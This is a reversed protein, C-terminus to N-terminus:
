FIRFAQRASASQVRNSAVEVARAGKPADSGFDEETGLATNLADVVVEAMLRRPQAHSCNTHDQGNTANPVATLQYVRSNLITRELRRLDYRHDVFDRAVADLLRENSPPNAVSISDVPDVLGAGFYLAWVRNVFSRAFLPNDRETMWRFLKERADGQYDIEPGGLAKAKLEGHTEPDPLRRLAHNDVFVE